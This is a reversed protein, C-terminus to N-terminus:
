PEASQSPREMIAAVLKYCANNFPEGLSVTFLCEGLQHDGNPMALYRREYLPDTVRLRYDAGSYTFRAQVRRKQDGFAQGPSFVSLVVNEVHILCLSTTLQHALELPVKDNRGHFTSHGNIWLQPVADVLERLEEWTLHDMKEWYHHPDLLWNEQQFRKPRPDLLEMKIVDGVVPDSGNQYQREYESVEEHERESVPRIWRSQKDNVLEKGAVCRGNLKRSNALCIIQKTTAM